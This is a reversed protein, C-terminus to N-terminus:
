NRWKGSGWVVGKCRMTVFRTDGGGRLWWSGGSRNKAVLKYKLGGSAQLFDQHNLSLPVPERRENKPWLLQTGLKM